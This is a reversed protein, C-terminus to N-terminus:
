EEWEELGPASILGDYYDRWDKNSLLIGEISFLEKTGEIPYRGVAGLLLLQEDYQFGFSAITEGAADEFIFGYISATSDIDDHDGTVEIKEIAKAAAAITAPDHFVQAPEGYECHNVTVVLTEAASFDIRDVGKRRAEFALLPEPFAHVDPQKETPVPATDTTIPAPAAPAAAEEKSCGALAMACLLIAVAFIVINKRM